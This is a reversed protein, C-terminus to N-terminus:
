KTYFKKILNLGWSVIFIYNENKLIIEIISYIIISGIVCIIVEYLISMQLFKILFCYLIIAVCGIFIPIMKTFSFHNVYQKSRYACFCFIIIESLLTTFAAATQEFLPIFYLNLVVNVIASIITAFLFYREEKYPILVGTGYLCAILSFLLAISLIKLSDISGVYDSGAILLVIDDSLIFLGIMAPFVFSILVWYVKDFLIKFNDTYTYLTLRPIAVTILAVMIQKVITYIKTATSYLGVCEDNILWGLLTLDSNVYLTSALTTSFIILVPAIHRKIIDFSIFPKYIMYKKVHLGFYINAFASSFIYIAAYIYLDRPSKVFLFLLILSLIQTTCQAITLSVFDEYVNYIWSRGFTNLIIQISLIFILIAYSSIKESFIVLITLVCYAFIMSCININYIENAFKNFKERNDRIKAGERIAYTNIGLEALLIFYSVISLSFNYKGLAEVQLVRSVYPFTILPVILSLVTKIMSLVANSTLSKQM